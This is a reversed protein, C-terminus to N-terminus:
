EWVGKGNAGPKTFLVADTAILRIEIAGNSGIYTDHKFSNYRLVEPFREVKYVRDAQPPYLRGDTRWDPPNNPVGSHEDEVRDLTSCILAYGDNRTSAAPAAALRKCFLELRAARDMWDGVVELGEIMCGLAYTTLTINRDKRSYTM